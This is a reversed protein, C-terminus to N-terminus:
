TVSSLIQLGQSTKNVVWWQQWMRGCPLTNVALTWGWHYLWSSSMLIHLQWFVTRLLLPWWLLPLRSSWFPCCLPPKTLSASSSMRTFIFPYQVSPILIMKFECQHVMALIRDIDNDNGHDTTVKVQQCAPWSDLGLLSLLMTNLRLKFIESMSGNTGLSLIISLYRLLVKSMLLAKVVIWQM